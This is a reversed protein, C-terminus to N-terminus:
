FQSVYFKVLVHDHSKIYEDFNDDTLIVVNEEKAYQEVSLALAFLFALLYYKM